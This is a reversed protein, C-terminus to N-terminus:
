RWAGSWGQEVRKWVAPWGIRAQEAADRQLAVLEGAAFLATDHVRPAASRERLWAEAVV